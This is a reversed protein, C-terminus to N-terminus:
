LVKIIIITKFERDFRICLLGNTLTGTSWTIPIGKAVTSKNSQSTKSLFLIAGFQNFEINKIRLSGLAGIRMGSDLLLAILAKERPNNCARFLKDIEDKTILDSPQVPTDTAKLKIRAAWKPCQTM